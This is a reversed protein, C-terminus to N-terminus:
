LVIVEGHFNGLANNISKKFNFKALFGLIEVDSKMTSKYGLTRPPHAYIHSGIIHSSM